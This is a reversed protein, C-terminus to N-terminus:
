SRGAAARRPRSVRWTPRRGPPPAVDAGSPRGLPARPHHALRHLGTREPPPGLRTWEVAVAVAVPRRRPCPAAIRNRPSATTGRPPGDGARSAASCASPSTVGPLLGLPRASLSRHPRRPCCSPRRGARQWGADYAKNATLRKPTAVAELPLVATGIYAVNAPTLASAVSRGWDDTWPSTPFSRCPMWCPKSWRTSAEISLRTTTNGTGTKGWRHWSATSSPAM